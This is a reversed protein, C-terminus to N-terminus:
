NRSQGGPAGTYGSPCGCWPTVPKGQKWRTFMTTVLLALVLGMFTSPMVVVRNFTEKDMGMAYPQMPDAQLMNGQIPDSSFFGAFPHDSIEVVITYKEVQNLQRYSM